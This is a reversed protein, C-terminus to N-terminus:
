KNNIFFIGALVLASSLLVTLKSNNIFDINSNKIIQM